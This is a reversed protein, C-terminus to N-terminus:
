LSSKTPFNIGDGPVPKTSPWLFTIWWWDQSGTGFFLQFNKRKGLDYPHSFPIGERKCMKKRPANEYFEIQTQGSLLLFFNFGNFGILVVAFCATLVFTLLVPLFSRQGNVEYLPRASMAAIYTCGIWLYVLFLMFYKHNAFGVCNLVWPCHHDMKLVCRKCIPCHHTRPPKFNKCRKCRRTTEFLQGEADLQTPPNGPNVRVVQVYNFLINFLIFCSFIVHLFYAISGEEVTLPLLYTFHVWVIGSIMGILCLLLMPGLIRMACSMIEMEEMRRELRDFFAELRSVTRSKTPM